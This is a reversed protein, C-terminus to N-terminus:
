KISMIAREVAGSAASHVTKDLNWIKHDGSISYKLALEHPEECVFVFESVSEQTASTSFKNKYEDQTLCDVVTVCGLLCGSPYTEPFPLDKEGYLSRYQSEVEEIESPAPEKATSAIWLRGRHHTYWGRGEVTKIGLVLLSAWPQHMSLCKGVTEKSPPPIFGDGQVRFYTERLMPLPPRANTKTSPTSIHVYTPPAQLGPNAYQYPDVVHWTADDANSRNSISTQAPPRFQSEDLTLMDRADIVRQGVIDLTIINNKQKKKFEEKAEDLKKKLDERTKRTEPDLWRSDLEYYDDEDDIVRTRKAMQRDFVLLREKLDLAQILADLKEPTLTEEEQKMKVIEKKRATKTMGIHSGEAEGTLATSMPVIADAGCFLCLGVGEQACVIKGCEVCNGILKHRTTMCDCPLRGPQVQNTLKTAIQDLTQISHSKKKKSPLVESKAPKKLSKGKKGVIVNTQGFGGCISSSRVGVDRHDGKFADNMFSLVFENHKKDTPDLLSLLYQRAERANDLSLTLKVIETVDFHLLAELRKSWKDLQELRLRQQQSTQQSTM